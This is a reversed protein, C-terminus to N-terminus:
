PATSDGQPSLPRAKFRKKETLARPDHLIAAFSVGQTKAADLFARNGTITVAKLSDGTGFIVITRPKIKSSLSLKKARESVCDEVVEIRSLLKKARVKEEPGGVDELIKMFSDVATQCCILKRPPSIQADIFPWVSNKREWEAQMNILPEDYVYNSGGFCMDSVYTMMTSLDLNITLSREKEISSEFEAYSEWNWLSIEQDELSESDDVYEEEEEETSDYTYTEPLDVLSGQVKVGLKLLRRVLPEAAGHCFRFVILPPKFRHINSEATELFQEAQALLNQRGSQPPCTMELFCRSPERAIVKIWTAGNNAVVDVTLPIGDRDLFVKLLGTVSPVSVCTLVVEVLQKLNSCFVAQHLNRDNFSKAEELSTVEREIRRQLKEVGEVLHKFNALLRICRRGIEILDDVVDEPEKGDALSQSLLHWSSKLMEAPLLNDENEGM